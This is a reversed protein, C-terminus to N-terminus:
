ETARLFLRGEDVTIRNVALQPQQAAFAAAGEKAAVREFQSGQLIMEARRVKESELEREGAWIEM